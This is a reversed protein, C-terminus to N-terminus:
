RVLKDFKKIQVIMRSECAGIREAKVFGKPQRSIKNLISRPIM